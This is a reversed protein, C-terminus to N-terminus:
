TAPAGPRSATRAEKSSAVSASSDRRRSARRLTSASSPTRGSPGTPSSRGTAAARGPRRCARDLAGRHASRDARDRARSGARRPVSRRGEGVQELGRHAAAHAGLQALHGGARLQGGRAPREHDIGLGRDGRRGHDGGARDGREADAILLDSPDLKRLEGTSRASSRAPGRAGCSSAAARGAHLLRVRAAPQRPRADRLQDRRRRELDAAHGGRTLRARLWPPSPGITVDRFLRGIYRPCGELDEIRSTSPSTASRSRIRRGPAARSGPPADGRRRARRRVGLPSGAPQETIEIDIVTEGLPLVDGLPTGARRGALVLIGSHDHGLELERESLIM